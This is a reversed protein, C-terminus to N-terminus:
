TATETQVQIDKKAPVLGDSQNLQSLQSYPLFRGVRAM